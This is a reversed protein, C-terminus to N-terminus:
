TAALVSLADATGEVLSIQTGLTRGRGLRQLLPWVPVDNSWYDRGVLILPRPTEVSEYYLRTVMQFIEQVTGAAGPLVVLGASSYELLADERVANSFFKAIRQAFVNPPEHGFHWTPIGVSRPTRAVDTVEAPDHHQSEECIDLAVQAWADISEAFTPVTAVADLAAALQAEDTAWAGLNAAEMAGPGGGTVVSLGSLALRHGLQAAQAFGATGRLLAHGGMVGVVRQDSLCANLADKMADDHIARLVSVYADHRISADEAWSYARADVTSAYGGAAMGAYLEDPTYLTGRYSRVPVNPDSPFIVAGHRRLHQELSASLTGGLVILGQLNRRSRLADEHGRLDLGQFRAGALPMGSELVAQLHDLTEVEYVSATERAGRRGRRPGNLHEYRVERSDTGGIPDGRSPRADPDAATSDEM